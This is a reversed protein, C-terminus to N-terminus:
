EEVPPDTPVCGETCKNFQYAANIGAQGQAQLYEIIVADAAIHKKAPTDFEPNDWVRELKLTLETLDM